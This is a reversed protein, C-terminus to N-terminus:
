WLKSCHNIHNMVSVFGLFDYIFSFDKKLKEKEMVGLTLFIYPMPAELHLWLQQKQRLQQIKNEIFCSARINPPLM